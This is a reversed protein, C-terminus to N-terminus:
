RAHKQFWKKFNPIKKSISLEQRTFLKSFLPTLCFIAFEQLDHEQKGAKGEWIWRQLKAPEVQPVYCSPREELERMWTRKSLGPHSKNAIYHVPIGQQEYTFLQDMIHISRPRAWKAPAPDLVLLVAEADECLAKVQPNDWQNGVDLLQISSKMAYLLRYDHERTWHSAQHAPNMPIWTTYKTSWEKREQISLHATIDDAMFRYQWPAEKSGQLLEYLEPEISPHEIYEHEVGRRSLAAAMLLMMFTAGAGGYLNGVVILKRNAGEGGAARFSEHNREETNQSLLLLERKVDLATRYRDDPDPSLLKEILTYWDGHLDRRVEQLPEEAPIYYQGGTLLYYLVAGLAYLDSREDTQHGSLQEPSAFGVTAIHVTDEMQGTKYSRAIGFDILRVRHNTDIMINSPKLDRYVVTDTGGHHLYHLLDCLQVAYEAAQTVNFPQENKEFLDQLTQGNVYDMVICLSDDELLLSDTIRPLYPHELKMLMKVEDLPLKRDASAIHKVAWRKGRLRLDEALYVCSMGGKGLTDIIRYRESIVNGVRIKYEM